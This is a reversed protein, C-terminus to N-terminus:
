GTAGLNLEWAGSELGLFTTMAEVEAEAAFRFAAGRPRKDVYGVNVKLRKGDVKASAWGIMDDRWLM